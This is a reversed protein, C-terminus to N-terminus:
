GETKTLAINMEMNAGAQIVVKQIYDDYGVKEIVINYPLSRGRLEFLAPTSKIVDNITVIAGSPDSRITLIGHKSIPKIVKVMKKTSVMKVGM